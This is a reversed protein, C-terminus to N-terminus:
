FEETRLCGEEYDWLNQDFGSKIFRMTELMATRPVNVALLGPIGTGEVDCGLARIRSRVAEVENLDYIILRVTSNESRRVVTQFRLEGDCITATVVDECCVGRVFFPINDIKYLKGGLESAWISEYKEPPYGDEDREIEFVIKVHPSM